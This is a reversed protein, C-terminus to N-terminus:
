NGREAVVRYFARSEPPNPDRLRLTGGADPRVTLVRVWPGVSPDGTRELGYQRSPVAPCEIEGLATVRTPDIRLASDARAPHTDALYEQTNTFGDADCDEGTPDAVAPDLCGPFRAEWYDPIGDGDSDPAPLLPQGTTLESTGNVPDTTTTTVLWGPPLSIPFATDFAAQGTADPTVSLAGLLREAHSATSATGGRYAFFEIRLPRGPVGTVTGQAHTSGRFANTIRSGHDPPVARQISKLRNSVILNGLIFTAINTGQIEIGHGSHARILNGDGPQEGGLTVDTSSEDVVVGHVPSAPPPPSDPLLDLVVGSIRIARSRRIEINNSSGPVLFLDAAELSRLPAIFANSVNALLLNAGSNVIARQLFGGSTGARLAHIALDRSGLARVGGLANASVM